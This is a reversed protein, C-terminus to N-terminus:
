RIFIKQKFGENINILYFGSALPPLKFSLNSNSGSVRQQSEYVTKGYIDILSFSLYQQPFQDLSVFIRDEAPNPYVRIHGELLNSISTTGDWNYRRNIGGISGLAEAQFNSLTNVVTNTRIPLNFDFYIDAFNEIETGLAANPQHDISFKIFGHSAPENINSDPLMINDFRFRLIAQGTGGVELQYPHSSAGLQMSLPDLEASLTDIIMINFATDTGTNQFRIFYNLRTGPPTLGDDGMGEPAVQKDNPDYSGIIEQCDVASSPEPKPIPLAFKPIMGKAFPATLTAVCGELAASVMTNDPHNPVQDVELRFMQGTAPVDFLLNAGSNLILKGEEVLVTDAYLRYHTSDHMDSMGVNVVDFQNLNNTCAAFIAVSAGSWNPNPSMCLDPSSVYAEVCQTLGLIEESECSVITRLNLTKCEWVAITGLNFLLNSDADFSHAYNASQFELFQPLVVTLQSQSAPLLGKNCIQISVTGPFCRRSWRGGIDLTLEPCADGQVLIDALRLTSDTPQVSVSDPEECLEWGDQPSLSLTYIGTDVSMAYEGLNNSRSFVPGPEAQILQGPLPFDQDDSICDENDDLWLEGSILYPKKAKCPGNLLINDITCGAGVNRQFVSEATSRDLRSMYEYLGCCDNLMPQDRIFLTRGAYSLNRLGFLGTLVWNGSITIRGNLSDVQSLADINQLSLNDAIAISGGVKSINHLGRLNKLKPNKWIFLSTTYQSTNPSAIARLSALGEINQLSANKTIEVYSDNVEVDALGDVNLLQPNGEILIRQVHKVGAFGDINKLSTNSRISIQKITEPLQMGDLSELGRNYNFSVNGNFTTLNPFGSLDVLSDLYSFSIFGGVEELNSLGSIDTLQDQINTDIAGTISLGGSIKKLNSLGNLNKLKPNDYIQLTGRAQTLDSFGDIQTLQANGIISFGADADALRNMGAVSILSPNDQISISPFDVLSSLGILSELSANDEITFHNIIRRLSDLGSLDRLGDFGKIVMGRGVTKLGSFG